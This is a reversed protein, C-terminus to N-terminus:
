VVATFDNFRRQPSQVQNEFGAEQIHFAANRDHVQNRFRGHLGTTKVPCVPSFVAPDHLRDVLDVPGQSFFYHARRDLTKLSSVPELRFITAGNYSSFAHSVSSRFKLIQFYISSDLPSLKDSSSVASDFTQPIYSAPEVHSKWKVGEM